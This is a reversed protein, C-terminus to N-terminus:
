LDILEPYDILVDAFNNYIRIIKTEPNIHFEHNSKSWVSYMCYIHYENELNVLYRYKPLEPTHLLYWKDVDLKICPKDYDHYRIKKM